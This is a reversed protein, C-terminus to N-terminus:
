IELYLLSIPSDYYYAIANTKKAAEVRTHLYTTQKMRNDDKM